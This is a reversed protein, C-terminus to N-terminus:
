PRFKRRRAIVILFCLFTLALFVTAPIPVSLLYGIDELSALTTLSVFTPTDIATTMLEDPGGAWAEDWLIDAIGAGGDLEVPVFAADPDFEARYAALAKAGTYLGSGNVYVNNFTWMTGFGMVHAMERVITDFLVGTSLTELDASDFTLFGSTPLVFGSEFVGRQPGSQTFSGGAGDIEASSVSISLEAIDIDGQYGSVRSEWFSEARSFASQQSASLANSFSLRIDFGAANTAAPLSLMALAAIGFAISKNM